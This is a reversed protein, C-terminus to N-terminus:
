CTMKLKDMKERKNLKKRENKKHNQTCRVIFCIFFWKFNWKIRLSLISCKNSHFVFIFNNFYCSFKWQINLWLDCCEIPLQVCNWSYCLVCVWMCVFFDFLLFFYRWIYKSSPVLHFSLSKQHKRFLCWWLYHLCKDLFMCSKQNFPKILNFKFLYM